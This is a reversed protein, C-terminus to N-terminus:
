QHSLTRMGVQVLVKLAHIVKSQPHLEGTCILVHTLLEYVQEYVQEFTFLQVTPPYTGLMSAYPFSNHTPYHTITSTPPSFRLILAEPEALCLAGRESQGGTVAAQGAASCSTWLLLLWMLMLQALRDKPGPQHEKGLNEKLETVGCDLSNWLFFNIPTLANGM